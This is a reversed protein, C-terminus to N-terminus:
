VKIKIINKYKNSIDTHIFGRKPYILIRNFGVALLSSVILYLENSNRYRIDSALGKVHNSNKVGGVNKNHSECRYGSTILFPIKARDRAKDLMYVLRLNIRNENCGCKCKFEKLNFYKM